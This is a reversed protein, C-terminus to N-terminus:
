SRGELMEGLLDDETAVPVLVKGLSIPPIDLVSHGPRKADPLTFVTVEQGEPLSQGDQLVVVGGHVVGRAVM